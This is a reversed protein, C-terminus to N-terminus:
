IAGILTTIAGVLAMTLAVTGSVIATIVTM